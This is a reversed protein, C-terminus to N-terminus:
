WSMIQFLWWFQLRCQPERSSVGSSLPENTVPSGRWASQLTTKPGGNTSYRSCSSQYRRRNYHQPQSPTSSTTVPRRSTWSHCSCLLRGERARKGEGLLGHSADTKHLFGTQFSNFQTDGMATLWVNGHLKRMTSVASIPRLETMKSHFPKTPILSAAVTTWQTEFDLSTFMDTIAQALQALQTPSLQHFIEAAVGGPCSKHKRLKKICKILLEVDRQFVPTDAVRTHWLDVWWTRNEDEAQRQTQGQVTNSLSLSIPVNRNGFVRVWNLRKSKPKAPPARGKECCEMKKQRDVHCRRARRKRWIERCLNPRDKDDKDSKNLAKLLVDLDDEYGKCTDTEMPFKIDLDRWTELVEAPRNWDRVKEMENRWEPAPRWDVVCPTRNPHRQAITETSISCTIPWHDSRVSDTGWTDRIHDVECSPVCSSAKVAVFDVQTDNDEDTHGTLESKNWPKKTAEGVVM